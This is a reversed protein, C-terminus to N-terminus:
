TRGAAPQHGPPDPKAPKPKAPKAPKAKAPGKAKGPKGDDAQGAIDVAARVPRPSSSAVTRGAVSLQAACVTDNLRFQSPLTTAGRYTADFATSASAGAALGAGTVRLSQSDQRWGTGRVLKQGDPLTFTLQWNPAPVSGTNLITVATSFRGNLANRIAYRVTCRLAAPTQTAPAQTAPPEAMAQVAPSGSRSGFWAAMAVLVLVAAGAAALVRGRPRTRILATTPPAPAPEEGATPLLPPPSVLGAADALVSAAEAADPRDAPNKALCRRCLAAVEPPLGHVSPLRAPDLYRHATLMQTTTSAEWPLRGCLTLYLMLGLAYVDTAPRVQGGSLREPALYAPTGLVEGGVGDAEGVTASIGFDVLKVGDSTVMVNSPKIDRHVIGRAHAAALAAAIQACVLVAVRWPLAGATLLEALSRGHVLEMVVYPLSQETEGYDHVEVVNPHHLRAAARAEVQIRASLAPDAALEPSLVKVAVERDLVEDHARWVVSMGGAGLRDLLRYRDAIVRGSEVVDVSAGQGGDL